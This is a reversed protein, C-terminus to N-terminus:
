WFASSFSPLGAVVEHECEQLVFLLGLFRM